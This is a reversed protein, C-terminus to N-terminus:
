PDVPDFRGVQFAHGHGLAHPHLQVTHVVGGGVFALAQGAIRQRYRQGFRQGRDRQAALCVSCFLSVVMFFSSAVRSSPMARVTAASGAAAWSDPLVTVIVALALPAATLRASGLSVAWPTLASRRLKATSLVSGM